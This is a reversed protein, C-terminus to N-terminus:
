WQRMGQQAPGRGAFFQVGGFRKTTPQGAAAPGKFTGIVGVWTNSREWTWTVTEATTAAVVKYDVEGPNQTGAGSSQEELIETYGANDIAITGSQFTTYAVWGAIILEDAQSLTGTSGTSPTSSSGTNTSSKDAPTSTAIDAEVATGWARSNTGNASATITFTGSAAANACYYIAISLKESFDGGVQSAALLTYTNGQNDTVDGARWITLAGSSSTENSSVIVIIGHGATPTSGFTMNFTGDTDTVKTISQLVSAAM